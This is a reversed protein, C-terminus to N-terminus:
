CNYYLAYETSLAPFVRALYSLHLRWRWTHRANTQQTVFIRFREGQILGIKVKIEITILRLRRVFVWEGKGGGRCFFSRHPRRYVPKSSALKIKM